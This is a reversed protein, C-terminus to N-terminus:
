MGAAHGGWDPYEDLEDFGGGDEDLGLCDDVIARAAFASLECSWWAREEDNGANRRLGAWVVHGVFDVPVLAGGRHALHGDFILPVSWDALSPSGVFAVGTATAEFPIGLANSLEDALDGLRRSASPM